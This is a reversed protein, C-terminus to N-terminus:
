SMGVGHLAIVDGENALLTEFDDFTMQFVGGNAFGYGWSTLFKLQQITNSIGIAVYQHGGAIYPNNPDDVDGLPGVTVLGNTDPTFMQQTWLTGVCLPQTQIAKRFDGFSFTHEYRDVYGLQQCAKAMDVGNSGNDNPPYYDSPDDEEHTADSYITLAMSETFWPINLKTRTPAFFDTNLCQAAANGTCSSTNGQNLIYQSVTWLTDKEAMEAPLSLEYDKSREDHKVHRGLKYPTDTPIPLVRTEVAM